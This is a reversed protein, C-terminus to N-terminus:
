GIEIMKGSKAYMIMECINTIHDGIRELYRGVFLFRVGQNISHEPDSHMVRLSDRRIRYYLEDIDKDKIAIKYAKEDDEELFAQRLDRLMQICLNAMIPIDILQKVHETEGIAITENCINAAYDGIRELESAIDSLVYIYRLDRAMPQKLAMLEVSRDRIYARLLDIDEDKKIVDEACHIDKLIMSNISKSVAEECKMIMGSTYEKLTRISLEIDGTYM